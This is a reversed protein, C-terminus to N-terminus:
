GNIKIKILYGTMEKENLIKIPSNMIFESQLFIM